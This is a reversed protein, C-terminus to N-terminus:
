KRDLGLKQLLEDFCVVCLDCDEIVCHPKGSCTKNDNYWEQIIQKVESLTKSYDKADDNRVKLLQKLEKIEEKLEKNAHEGDVFGRLYEDNM